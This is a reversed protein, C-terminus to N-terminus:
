PEPCVDQLWRLLTRGSIPKTFFADVGFRKAVERATVSNDATLMAVLCLPAESSNKISELLTFGDGRSELSADLIVVAPRHQEFLQWGQATNEATLVEYHSGIGAQVMKRIIPSDEVLLVQPRRANASVM